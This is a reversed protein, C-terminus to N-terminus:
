TKEVALHVTLMKYNSMIISPRFNKVSFKFLTNILDFNILNPAKVHHHIEMNKGLWNLGIYKYIVNSFETNYYYKFNLLM